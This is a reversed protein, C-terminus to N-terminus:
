KEVVTSDLAKIVADSLATAAKQIFNDDLLKKRDENNTIFAIEALAAPMKSSYLVVLNPREIIGRDQTGLAAVLTDQIIAAFKRSKDSPYCLTETGYESTKFANNHISLFFSANMANAIKTRDQLPIFTDDQRTMYTNIGKSKLLENVKLAIKLNLDKELIGAYSAGTDSGGHGADIVVLKDSKTHPKLVNIETENSDPNTIVEYICGLRANFTISTLHRFDNNKIEISDMIGDNIQLMGSGIDALPTQFFITYRKGTADMDETFLPNIGSAEDSTGDVSGESAQKPIIETLKVGKLSLCATDGNNSYVINRYAPNEIFLALQDQEGAVRYQPQGNTEAVIRATKADLQTYHINKILDANLPINQQDEPVICNPIDMVIRDPNTLRVVSYGDHNGGPIVVRSGNETSDISIRQPVPLARDVEGRNTDPTKDQSSTNVVATKSFSITLLGNKQVTKYKPKSKVDFVVRANKKTFQSYRISNIISSNVKIVGSGKVSVLNNPLDVIIRDPNPLYSVKYGKSSTSYLTVNDQGGSRAYKINKLYSAAKSSSKVASKSSNLAFSDFLPIFLITIFLFIALLKKM